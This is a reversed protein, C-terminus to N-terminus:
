WRSSYGRTDLHLWDGYCGIGLESGDIGHWGAATLVMTMWKTMGPMFMKIEAGAIGNM